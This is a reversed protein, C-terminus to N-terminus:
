LVSSTSTMRPCAASWSRGEEPNKLGPIGHELLRRNKERIQKRHREFAAASQQLETETVAPTTPEPEAKPRQSPDSWRRTVAGALYRRWGDPTRRESSGLLKTRIELVMVDVQWRKAGAMELNAKQAELLDLDPPCPGPRDDPEGGAGGRVLDLGLGLGLGPTAAS